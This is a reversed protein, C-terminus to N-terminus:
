HVHHTGGHHHHSQVSFSERFYHRVIPHHGSQHYGFAVEEVNRDDASVREHQRLHDAWSVLSFQEIYTEPAEAQHFLEWRYAGTKLRVRRLHRMAELFATRNEPAIQYELTVAMSGTRENIPVSVVPEGWHLSPALELSELGGLRFRLALLQALLLGGASVALATSISTRSALTGWTLSGLTMAGFFAMLYVSLGRARVWTPLASQVSVNLSSLNSIWALGGLAGALLLVSLPLNPLTLVAMVASFAVSALLMLRDTSLKARIRKLLFAGSLGGAGVAAMLIGLQQADGNMVQKVYIPLLAYFASACFLFSAARILVAQLEPSYRAFRLGILLADAFHEKPLKTAEASQPKKWRCLVWIVALFSLANLGFVAYSGWLSIVYGGLAPGIARASNIGVGQLAVAEGMQKKQVIKPIIAQWAPGNLAGGVGLVFALLQLTTPTTWGLWTLACLTAASIFMWWQSVLLLKRRDVLDAM